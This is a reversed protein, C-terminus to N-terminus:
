DPLEFWATTGGWPSAALGIRGGHAEVIRRCTTLGIGSGEVLDDIRSLPEFVRERDEEAIGPGHDSVEVRWGEACRSGAVVVEPKEGARTFKAANALLNQLLARLQVRDGTVTPLDRVEVTAGQMAVELDALVDGVVAELDVRVRKLEGGVRAFALLDDILRQMRESGGIARQLLWGVEPGASPGDDDGIAEDIMRLSMSVATLPNRLDHSVQGAFATLQENSRRLEAQAAELEAVTGSLERTRVELELLDVVRDALSRLSRAQEDSLDRPENGFVCLAGIVVGQPTVLQEAAYFRVDGTTGDVNPNDRFREDETADRVMVPEQLDLLVNCMSDERARVGAVYGHTVVPHEEVDSFLNIAAMPADAMQAAVEVLAVLDSRPPRALVGYNDLEAVRAADQEFSTV